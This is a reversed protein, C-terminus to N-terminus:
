RQDAGKVTTVLEDRLTAWDCDVSSPLARAVVDVGVLGGDVLERAAAKLRRRVLNRNVANGVKKTVVFGFRAPSSEPTILTSVTMSSMPHRKGRRLVGRFDAATLLRNMRALM